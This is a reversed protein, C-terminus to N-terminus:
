GGIYDVETTEAGEKVNKGYPFAIMDDATLGSIIETESGYLTKGTQVYRKELRSDEGRVYCYSGQEDSRIFMKSIYQTQVSSEESTGFKVQVYDGVSLNEGADSMLVTVPYYSVNSNGYYMQMDSPEKGKSAVTGTHTEGYMYDEITVPDGKKIKDYDLEGIVTTVKLEGEGVVELITEGSGVSEPDQLNKVTGAFSARVEGEPGVLKDQRYALDAERLEFKKEKLEEEADRVMEALEKRSYQYNGKEDITYNEHVIKEYREYTEPEISSLDGWAANAKNFDVAVGTGNFTLGQGINWDETLPDILIEEYRKEPVKEPEPEETEEPEEEPEDTGAPEEGTEEDAEHDSVEQDTAEQDSAEQDADEAGTEEPEQKEPEEEPEKEPTDPLERKEIYSEPLNKGNVTWVAYKTNGDYIVFRATKGTQRLKKLFDLKVVTDKSCNFSYDADSGIDSKTGADIQKKIDLKGHDVVEITPKPASESPKLGRLTRIRSENMTIESEILAITAKDKQLTLKHATTDFVLLIDGKKVKDGEQVNVSEVLGDNMRVKQINGTTIQGEMAGGEDWSPYLYNSASTVEVPSTRLKASLWYGGGVLAIVLVPILIMLTKGKKKKM